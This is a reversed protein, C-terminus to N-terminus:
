IEGKIYNYQSKDISFYKCIIEDIENQFCEIGCHANVFTKNYLEIIYQHTDSSLIPLPLKQLHSKLVKRSHFKKQFIFTYIGSNFFSVITEMPYKKSIFLNASNLLLAGGHDLVCVLKDCIFRYATKKQKYYEVPATQQYLEPQFEIFYEPELFMYKEIDKGRFVAESKETKKDLLHKENNGTVIGLAFVTDSQLVAHDTNFIKEILLSDYNNGAASVMYDPPVINKKPLQWADGTRNQITVSEGGLGKKISILVCESLVGKFANGLLKIVIKDDNNFIYNRINKHMAVNLFAHPLFFYLEGTKKLMKLSNYLSISFIESTKLEPYSAIFADKEKKSFKSGWPPNTIIYDFRENVANSSLFEANNVAIDQKSINVPIDKDNFFLALNIFCIRLATEDIDRAFIKSPNHAKTLVNLLIGGSGCCPDLITKEPDVQIENLLKSPTYYSGTNSKQSVSQISQYFAGLIDDDFNPIEYQSYLRRVADRNGSKIIWDSLLSDIKSCKNSQWNEKILKNSRLLAFSLALVGDDIPLNSKEFDDILADLVKKRKKGSIGLYCKEKKNQLSRNARANLRDPTNELTHIIHDFSAKSYYNQVDPSPIVATKIWNNVAALSVGLKESITEKRMLADMFVGYIIRMSYTLTDNGRSKKYAPKPPRLGTSM